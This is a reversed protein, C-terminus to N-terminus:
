TQTASENETSLALLAELRIQLSDLAECTAIDDAPMKAFDDIIEQLYEREKTTM